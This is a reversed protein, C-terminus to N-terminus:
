LVPLVIIFVALGWDLYADPSLNEKKKGPNVKEYEDILTWINHKINGHTSISGHEVGQPIM